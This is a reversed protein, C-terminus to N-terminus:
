RRADERSPLMTLEPLNHRVTSPEPKSPQRKSISCRRRDRVDIACALLVHLHGDAPRNAAAKPQPHPQRTPRLTGTRPARNPDPAPSRKAPAAAKAAASQRKRKPRGTYQQM